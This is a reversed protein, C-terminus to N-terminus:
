ISDSLVMQGIWHELIMKPSTVRRCVSMAARCDESMDDLITKQRNEVLFKWSKGCSDPCTTHRPDSTATATEEDQLTQFTFPLPPFLIHPHTLIRSNGISPPFYFNFYKESGLADSPIELAGSQENRRIEFGLHM